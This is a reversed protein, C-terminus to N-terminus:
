YEESIDLLGLDKGDGKIAKDLSDAEFYYVAPFMEAQATKDQQGIYYKYFIFLGAVLALVGTAISLMNKNRKVFEESQNLKDKVTNSEDLVIPEKSDKNEAM